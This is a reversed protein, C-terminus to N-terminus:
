LKQPTRPREKERSSLERRRRRHHALAEFQCAQALRGLQYVFLEGDHTQELVILVLVQAARAGKVLVDVGQGRASLTRVSHARQHHLRLHVRGLRVAVDVRHFHLYARPWKSKRATERNSNQANWTFLRRPACLRLQWCFSSLYRASKAARFRSISLAFSMPAPPGADPPMLRAGSPMDACRVCIISSVLSMKSLDVCCSSSLRRTIASVSCTPSLIMTSRSSCFSVSVRACSSTRSVELRVRSACRTSRIIPLRASMCVSQRYRMM